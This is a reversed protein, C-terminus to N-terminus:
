ETGVARSLSESTKEFEIAVNLIIKEFVEASLDIYDTYNNDLVYHMSDAGTGSGEMMSLMDALHVIYSISRYEEPSDAPTHHYRIVSRLILPINWHAALLVGVETHDTGSYAKEEEIFSKGAVNNMDALMDGVSDELYKSMVSKGIDHLLGATYALGPNIVEKSHHAIERAALATKLSHMWLEGSKSAYGDLDKFFVTGACLGMAIGVVTKDGLYSIARMISDVPASMGFAASNIVNLVKATLIPDCEVVSTVDALNYDKKGMLTVLQMASQSLFPIAQINKMLQDPKIM